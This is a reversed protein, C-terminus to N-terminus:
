DRIERLDCIAGLCKECELQLTTHAIRFKRHLLENIANLIESGKSIMQDEILVHGSLAYVGSTITWIHVDHFDRVGPSRKVEQVLLNIDIHKPVGELLINTSESVLRLASILILIGIFVSVVPDIILWGTYLIVAGAFIVGISSLADSAIHLFASRINLNEHSAERLLFIGLLNALLGVIAISLMLSSNVVLPNLFRHYAEYFIYLSIFILAAGNTMAALIEMRLYGYTKTPTAPKQAVKLALLTIALALTDTFMHGADSLLALSNSLIGGIFEALTIFATLLFALITGRETKATATHKKTM